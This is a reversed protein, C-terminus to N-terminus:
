ISPQNSSRRRRGRTVLRGRSEPSEGGPSGLPPVKAVLYRRLCVDCCLDAPIGIWSREEIATQWPDLPIGCDTLRMGTRLRQVPLDTSRHWVSWHEFLRFRIWPTPHDLGPPWNTIRRSM